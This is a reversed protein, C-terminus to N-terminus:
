GIDLSSIANLIAAEQHVFLEKDGGAEVTVVSKKTVFVSVWYAHERGERRIAYRIQKGKIGGAAVEHAELATYGARRLEADVAGSWFALDGSPDNKERRVALVVGEANSARYRYGDAKDLEAFGPPTTIHVASCGTLAGAAALSMALLAPRVFRLSNAAFM